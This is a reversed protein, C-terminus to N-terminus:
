SQIINGPKMRPREFHGYRFCAIYSEPDIQVLFLFSFSVTWFLRGDEYTHYPRWETATAQIDQSSTHQHQRLRCRGNELM